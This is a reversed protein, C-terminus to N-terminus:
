KRLKWSASANFFRTETYKIDYQNRLLFTNSSESNFLYTPLHLYVPRRNPCTILQLQTTTCAVIAALPRDCKDTGSASLSRLDRGCVSLIPNAPQHLVIRKSPKALPRKAM